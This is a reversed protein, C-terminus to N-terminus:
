RWLCALWGDIGSTVWEVVARRGGHYASIALGFPFTNWGGLGSCVPTHTSARPELPSFALVLLRTQLVWLLKSSTPDSLVQFSLCTVQKADVEGVALVTCCSTGTADFLPFLCGSLRHGIGPSLQPPHVHLRWLWSIPASSARDAM